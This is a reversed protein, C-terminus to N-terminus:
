KSDVMSGDNPTSHGEGAQLISRLIGGDKKSSLDEKQWDIMEVQLCFLFL